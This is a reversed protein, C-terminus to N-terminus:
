PIEGLSAIFLDWREREALHYLYERHDEKHMRVKRGHIYETVFKEEPAPSRDQDNTKM